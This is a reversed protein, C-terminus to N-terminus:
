TVEGKWFKAVGRMRSESRVERVIVSEPAEPLPFDVMVEAVAGAAVLSRLESASRLYPGLGALQAASELGVDTFAALRGRGFALTPRPPLRLPIEVIVEFAFCSVHSHLTAGLGELSKKMIRSGVGQRGFWRRVLPKGHSHPDIGGTVANFLLVMGRLFSVGNRLTIKLREEGHAVKAVATGPLGHKRANSALNLLLRELAGEDLGFSSAGVPPAEGSQEAHIGQGALFGAIDGITKLSTSGTPAAIRNAEGLRSDHVLKRLIGAIVAPSLGQDSVEDNGSGPSRARAGRSMERLIDHEAEEIIAQFYHLNAGTTGLARKVMDRVQLWPVDEALFLVHGSDPTSRLIREARRVSAMMALLCSGLVGLLGAALVLPVLFASRVLKVLVPNEWCTNAEVIVLYSFLAGSPSFSREFSRSCTPAVKSSSTWTAYTEEAGPGGRITASLFRPSDRQSSATFHSALFDSALQASNLQAFRLAGGEIANMVLDIEQDQVSEWQTERVVKWSWASALATLVLGGALFGM